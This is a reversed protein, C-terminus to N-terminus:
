SSEEDEKTELDEEVDLESIEEINADEVKKAKFIVNNTPSVIKNPDEKMELIAGDIPEATPDNETSEILKDILPLVLNESILYDALEVMTSAGTEIKDKGLVGKSINLLGKYPRVLKDSKAANCLMVVPNLSKPDFVIQFEAKGFPRATKNKVFTVTSIQGVIVDQGGEKVTIKSKSRTCIRQDSYFKLAQGGPTTEPSNHVIAGDVLYTANDQITLDFKKKTRTSPKEYIDLIKSPVPIYTVNNNDNIVYDYKGRCSPHLKYEMCSPVYNCILEHFRRTDNSNFIFGNDKVKPHLNYKEFAELMIDKNSFKTCAIYCKGNGWKKYCGGFSGDDLYWIALGLIDINNKVEKPIVCCTKEKYRLRSLEYMPITDFTYRQFKNNNEDNEVYSVLDGFIEKKWIAYDKQDIGQDIRLQSCKNSVDRISGDGLISGYVVQMQDKSLYYPQSILIEDGVDLDGAKVEDYEYKNTDVNLGASKFIVHDTTCSINTKGNGGHKEAVIQLFCDDEGINGNDHWELIPKPEIANTVPNYSLVNAKIKNNVIKGIKMSIGDEMIVRSNYHFCGYMVGIKMRIQNVFVCTTKTEGTAKKIKRCGRSLMRAQEGVRANDELTGDLESLPTLAATSDIVVLGFAGSKCIQYAYELAQEGSDFDNSYVLKAVDVGHQTAWVPDFSQEIDILVCELGQKQASAILFLTLLSKGSSEHGFIEVMKGRPVGGCYSADDVPKYGFSIVPVDLQEINGFRAFTSKGGKNGMQKEINALVSDIPDKTNAM